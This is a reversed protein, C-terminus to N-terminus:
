LCAYSTNATEFLPNLRFITAGRIWWKEKRSERWSMPRGYRIGRYTMGMRAEGTTKLVLRVNLTTAGDPRVTQWDNVGDLVEGSLREGRSRAVRCSALGVICWAHRWCDAAKQCELADRVVTPNQADQSGRAPQRRSQPVRNSWQSQQESRKPSSRPRWGVLDRSPRAYSRWEDVHESPQRLGPYTTRASM